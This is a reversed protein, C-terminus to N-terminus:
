TNVTFKHSRILAALSVAEEAELMIAKIAPHAECVWESAWERAAKTHPILVLCGAEMDITFDRAM